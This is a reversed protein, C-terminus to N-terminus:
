IAFTIKSYSLKAEESLNKLNEDEYCQEGHPEASFINDFFSGFFQIRWQEQKLNEYPHEGPQETSHIWLQM